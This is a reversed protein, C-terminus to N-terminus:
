LLRLRRNRTSCDESPSRVVFRALVYGKNSLKSRARRVKICILLVAATELGREVFRCCVPIPRVVLKKLM